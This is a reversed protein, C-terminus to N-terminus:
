NCILKGKSVLEGARQVQFLYVGASGLDSKRIALSTKNGQTLTFTKIHSGSASYLIVEVGSLDQGSEIYLYTIESFPNPASVVSIGSKVEPKETLGVLFGNGTLQLDTDLIDGPELNFPVPACAIDQVVTAGNPNCDGILHSIKTLASQHAAIESTFNGASDITMGLFDFYFTHDPQIFIWEVNQNLALSHCDPVWTILQGNLDYIKGSVTATADTFTNAAGITPSNTKYFYETPFGYENIRSCISQGPYVVPIFCDPYGYALSHTFSVQFGSEINSWHAVLTLSDQFQDLYFDPYNGSYYLKYFSKPTPEKAASRIKVRSTQSHMVISDFHMFGVDMDLFHVELTWTGPESVYLESIVPQMCHPPFPNANTRTLSLFCMAILILTASKKM